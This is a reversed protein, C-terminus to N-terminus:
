TLKFVFPQDRVLGMAAGCTFCSELLALDTFYTHWTSEPVAPFSMDHFKLYRRYSDMESLCYDLIGYRALWLQWDPDKEEPVPDFM